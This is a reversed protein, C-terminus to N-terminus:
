KLQAYGGEYDRRKNKDIMKGSGLGTNVSFLFSSCKERGPAIKAYDYGPYRIFPL